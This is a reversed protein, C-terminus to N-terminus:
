DPAAGFANRRRTNEFASPPEAVDLGEVKAFGYAVPGPYEDEPCGDAIWGRGQIISQAGSADSAAHELLEGVRDCAALRGGGDDAVNITLAAGGIALVGVVMAAAIRNARFPLRPAM